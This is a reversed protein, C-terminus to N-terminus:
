HVGGRGPVGLPAPLLPGYWDLHWLYDGFFVASSTLAITVKAGELHSPLARAMVDWSLNIAAPLASHIAVM